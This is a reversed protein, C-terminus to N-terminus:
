IIPMQRKLIYTILLRFRQLIDIQLFAILIWFGTSMWNWTEPKQKQENYKTSAIYMFCKKYNWHGTLVLVATRCYMTVNSHTKSINIALSRITTQLAIRLLLLLLLIFINELIKHRLHNFFLWWKLKRCTYSIRVGLFSCKLM